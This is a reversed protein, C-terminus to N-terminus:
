RCAGDKFDNRNNSCVGAYSNVGLDKAGSSIGKAFDSDMKASMPNVSHNREEPSRNTCYNLYDKVSGTSMFQQWYNTEKM